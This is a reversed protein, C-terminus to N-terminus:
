IDFELPPLILDSSEEEEEDWDGGDEVTITSSQPQSMLAARVRERNEKIRVELMRDEDYYPFHYRYGLVTLQATDDQLVVLGRAQLEEFGASISSVGVSELENTPIARQAVSLRVLPMSNPLGGFETGGHFCFLDLLLKMRYHFSYTPTSHGLTTTSTTCSHTANQVESWFDRPGNTPGGEDTFPVAVDNLMDTPVACSGTVLYELLEDPTITSMVGRLEERVRMLQSPLLQLHELYTSVRFTSAMHLKFKSFRAVRERERCEKSMEVRERLTQIAIRRKMETQAREDERRKSLLERRKELEKQTATANTAWIRQKEKLAAAFKKHAEALRASEEMEKLIREQEVTAKAQESAERTTLMIAYNECLHEGLRQLGRVASLVDDSERDATSPSTSHKTLSDLYQLIATTEIDKALTSALATIQNGSLSDCLMGLLVPKLVAPHLLSRWTGECGGICSRSLIEVQAGGWSHVESGFAERYGPRLFPVAWAVYGTTATGARMADHACTLIVWQAVSGERRYQEVQQFAFLELFQLFSLWVPARFRQNQEETCYLFASSLVKLTSYTLAAKGRVLESFQAVECQMKLYDGVPMAARNDSAQVDTLVFGAKGTRAKRKGSCPAQPHKPVAAVLGRLPVLVVNEILAQMDAAHSSWLAISSQFAGGVSNSAHEGMSYQALISLPRLSRDESTPVCLKGTTYVLEPPVARVVGEKLHLVTAARVAGQWLAALCQVHEDLALGRGDSRREFVVRLVFVSVVLSGFANHPSVQRRGVASSLRCLRGDDWATLPICLPDAESLLALSEGHREVIEVFHDLVQEDLAPLLSSPKLTPLLMPGYSNLISKALESDDKVLALFKPTSRFLSALVVRCPEELQAGLLAKLVHSPVDPPLSTESHHTGDKRGGKKSKISPPATPSSGLIQRLKEPTLAGIAITFQVRVLHNAPFVEEVDRLIHQTPYTSLGCVPTLTAILKEYLATCPMQADSGQKVSACLIPLTTCISECSALSQVRYKQHAVRVLDLLQQAADLVHQPSPNAFPPRGLVEDLVAVAHDAMHPLSDLSLDVHPDTHLSM